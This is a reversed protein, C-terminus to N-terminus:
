VEISDDGIIPERRAVCSRSILYCAIESYRMARELDNPTQTAEERDFAKLRERFALSYTRTGSM